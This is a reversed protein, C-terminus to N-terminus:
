LERSPFKENPQEPLRATDVDLNRGKRWKGKRKQLNRQGVRRWGKGGRRKPKGRGKSGGSLSKHGRDPLTM